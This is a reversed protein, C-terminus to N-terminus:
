AKEAENRSARRRSRNHARTRGSTARTVTVTV